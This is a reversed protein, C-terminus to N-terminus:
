RGNGNRRRRGSAKRLTIITERLRYNRVQGSHRNRAKEIKEISLGLEVGIKALILDTPIYVDAILSDGVVLIFRGNSKLSKTVTRMVKYMDDFYKHVIHPMDSRRYNGRRKINEEINAKLGEIWSNTYKSNIQAFTRILGKSVNDCVVLSDKVKKTDKAEKTFDLWAMEIKYNMVYDLGNMYPPSTIILDFCDKHNYEMANALLVQSETRINSKYKKQLISLDNCIDKIKQEMLIWPANGAVKKNKWYGLCPTRKLNSCDILISSFALLLLNKIKLQKRTKAPISDIGGKLYELNKLVEANFQNESKLFEPATTRLNKPISLFTEFLSKPNVDWSNVKTDAIFQLLPNLETGISKYGNLKSQTLVTGCGAFPDLIIPSDYDNKYQDLISQVFAASFGQIYPSWRHVHEAFNLTFQIPQRREIIETGLEKLYPKSDIDCSGGFKPSALINTRRIDTINSDIVPIKLQM